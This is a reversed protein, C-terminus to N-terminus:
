LSDRTIENDTLFHDAPEPRADPVNQRDARGRVFDQPHREEFDALCVILGDWQKRTQSARVRFGCRECIRWFDGPIYTM